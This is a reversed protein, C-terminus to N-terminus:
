MLAPRSRDRPPGKPADAEAARVEDLEDKTVDLLGKTLDKFAEYEPPLKEDKDPMM